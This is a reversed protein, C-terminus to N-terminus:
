SNPNQKLDSFADDIDININFNARLIEINDAYAM